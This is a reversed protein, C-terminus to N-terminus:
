TLKKFVMFVARSFLHEIKFIGKDEFCFNGKVFRLFFFSFKVALNFVIGPWFELAGYLFKRKVVTLGSDRALQSLRNATTVFNHSYDVDFFLTGMDNYDPSVIIFVGGPVLVRNTEQFLRQATLYDPMHEVVHTAIVIQQSADKELFPPATQQSVSIGKAKLAVAFAPSVEYATYQTSANLMDAIRGEGPGIEIVADGNKCHHSVEEVILAAFYRNLRKGVGSV